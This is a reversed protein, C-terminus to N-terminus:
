ISSHLVGGGGNKGWANKWIIAIMHGIYISGVQLGPLPVILIKKQAELEWQALLATDLDM